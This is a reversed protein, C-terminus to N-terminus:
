REVAIGERDRQRLQRAERLVSTRAANEVASPRAALHPRRSHPEKM